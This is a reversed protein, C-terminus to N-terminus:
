RGARARRAQVLLASPILVIVLFTVSVAAAYGGANRQFALTYVYQVLVMSADVRGGQALLYVQDFVKVNMLLQLGAVLATVPWLLPLTLRRFQAWRGAGDLAAADYVDAPISRLGALFLLLNFGATWWVTILAALPIVLAPRGLVRVPEGGTLPAALDALGTITWQWITTVTTVPLLYPLFLVALVAAQRVGKLRHVALALLLGVLTGPVVTLIVFWGTNLIARSFRWDRLLRLYNDIGVFDGRRILQGDTLSMWLMQLTPYAFLVGYVVLFPLM